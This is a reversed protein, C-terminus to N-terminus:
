PSVIRCIRLKNDNKFILLLNEKRIRKRADKYLKTILGGLLDNDPNLFPDKELQRLVKLCAQWEQLSFGYKNSFDIKM